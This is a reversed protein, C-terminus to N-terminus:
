SPPPFFRRTVLIGLVLAAVIVAAAALPSVGLLGVALGGAAIAPVAALLFGELGPATGLLLRMLRSRQRPPPADPARSADPM